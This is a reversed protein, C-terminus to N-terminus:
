EMSILLEKPNYRASIWFAGSVSGTVLGIGMLGAAAAAAPSLELCFSVENKMQETRITEEQAFYGNDEEATKESLLDTQEYLQEGIKPAAFGAAAAAFVFAISFIFACELFRQRWINIKAIGLSLLVGTEHIRERERLCLILTLVMVGAAATVGLMMVSIHNLRSIPEMCKEYATYNATLETFQPDIVGSTEIKEKIKGMNEPDKVALIAGDTFAPEIQPYLDKRIQQTTIIDTFIFNSPMDCEPVQSLLAPQEDSFVGVVELKYTKRQAGIRSDDEATTIQLFDGPKIRNKEALEDSILTKGEDGDQIHRGSELKLIELSFYEHLRTDTNGLVRAIRSKESGEAAFKGPNLEFDQADMYLCDMANVAEIEDFQLLRKVTEQNIRNQGEENQSKPVAKLYGPFSERLQRAAHNSATYISSGLLIMGAAASMALLLLISKGPKRVIYLFARHRAKLVGVRSSKQFRWHFIDADKRSLVTNHQIKGFARIVTGMCILMMIGLVAIATRGSIQYTLGEQRVPTRNIHVVDTNEEYSVTFAPADESPNALELMVGGATKTLPGALLFAPLFAAMLVIGAELLFQGLIKRRGIGLFALINIETKRSRMWISFVLSLILLAGALMVAAMCSSLLELLLLPKAAAKYDKDYRRITYYSWDVKENAKLQTEVEDLRDPDEVFVTLSGLLRDKEEALVDRGYFSNYQRQGWNRMDFPGFLTNAVIEPEISWQSLQQEFHIRFIGVIEAHYVEGYLEGTMYDYSQGDVFDGIALDNLRALEESILIKGSDDAHLHRGEVLELAGSVFHPYYASEQVIRFNNSRSAKKVSEIYEATYNERGERMAEELSPLYAAYFGPVEELGTYLQSAGMESYYGTVGPVAALEAAVSQTILPLKLTRVLEGKDNYSMSYIQDEPMQDMIIELGTSISKRMDEAARGASSRITLGTLMFLGLSFLLLFLLISRARKRILYLFARRCVGM